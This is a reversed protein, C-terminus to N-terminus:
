FIYEKFYFFFFYVLLSPINRFSRTPPASILRVLSIKKNPVMKFTPRALSTVLACLISGKPVEHHYVDLCVPGPCSLGPPVQLRTDFLSTSTRFRGQGRLQDQTCETLGLEKHDWPSYGALSMM